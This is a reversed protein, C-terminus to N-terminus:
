VQRHTFTLDFGCDEVIADQVSENAAKSLDVEKTVM